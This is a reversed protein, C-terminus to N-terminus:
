WTVPLATLGGILADTRLRLGELPVALALTPFRRPLADFVARLEVRALSAGICFRPGYAEHLDAPPGHDALQDLLMEVLEAVHARPVHM